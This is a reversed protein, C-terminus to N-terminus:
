DRWQDITELDTVVKLSGGPVNFGSEISCVRLFIFAGHIGYATPIALNFGEGKGAKELIDHYCKRLITLLQDEVIVQGQVGAQIAEGRSRRIENWALQWFPPSGERAGEDGGMGIVELLIKFHRLRQPAHIVTTPPSCWHRIAAGLDVLNLGAAKLRGPLGPDRDFMEKLRAKWLQSYQGHEARVGGLDVEEIVPIVVFMGERLTEGPIRRDVPEPSAPDPDFSLIRSHPPYFIGQGGEMEVLVAPRKDQGKEMEGFLRLEEFEQEGLVDSMRSDGSRMVRTVWRVCSDGHYRTVAEGREAASAPSAVPDFGFDPDDSCGTWVVQVLTAFRPATLLADPAAGWGRVRMPGVKLLVDFPWANRYDSPSHLFTDGPLPADEATNFLSEFHGRARRHCYIKFTQGQAQLRRIIARLETRLVSENRSLLEAACRAHDYFSRVDSGWRAQVTDAEGLVSTIANLITQDFPVPVTLWESLLARLRRSVDFAEDEDADHLRLIVQRLDRRLAAFDESHVEHREIACTEHQELFDFIESAKLM